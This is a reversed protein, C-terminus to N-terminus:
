AAADGLEDKLSLRETLSLLEASEEEPLGGVDRLRRDVARQRQEVKEIDRSASDIKRKVGALVAGYKGFETRVAGLLRWVDSSQKQIALTQFGMRLSSLIALLTTPGAVLIRLDRHLAEVLGPRRLIEAYLGETPLFLIGFDVTHPAAVYKEAITKACLRIQVELARAADEVAGADAREAATVLREYDEIPFKCDIPLWLPAEGDGGPMRVAYEVRKGSGPVVEVNRGFQEAALVQDLLGGLTAEGWTGRAKVNTLVRKLDGVGTALTQMEGVSRHVQELQDSVLKFSDGLRKELTGQLKEDVTARMQELKDGNETRLQDLRAEVGQRLVEHAAKHSQTLDALGLAVGNLRERQAESMQTLTAALAESVDKLTRAIEDRLQLTSASAEARIEALRAEVATKLAEQRRENGETLAGIQRTTDALKSTQVLFLDNIRSSVTDGLVSLTRAIEGRLEAAGRGAEQRQTSFGERMHQALHGLQAELRLTDAASAGAPRRLTQVVLVALLLFSAASLAVAAAVLTETTM